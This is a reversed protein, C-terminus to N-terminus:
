KKKTRTSPKRTHNSAKNDEKTSKKQRRKKDAETSDFKMLRKRRKKTDENEKNNCETIKESPQLISNEMNESWIIEDEDNDQSLNIDMLDSDTIQSLRPLRVPTNDKNPKNKSM